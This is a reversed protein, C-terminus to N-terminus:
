SGEFNCVEGAVRAPHPHDGQVQQHGGETWHDSDPPPGRVARAAM